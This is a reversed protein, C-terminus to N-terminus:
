VPNKIPGRKSNKKANRRINEIQEDTVTREFSRFGSLHFGHKDCLATIEDVQNHPINKEITYDEFRRELVLVMTEAMCAYAKGPPFSFDFNFNVEGPVDVVGGDIVLVDKRVAAVQISVDRPRAVDCVISGPSLHEPQIFSTTASTVTIILQAEGLVTLDTSTILRANPTGQLESQLDGLKATDRGILYLRAVEEALIEACVRGITGTAGVVAATAQKIDIDM